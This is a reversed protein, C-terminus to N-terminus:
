RLRQRYQTPSCGAWQRFVRNFQPISGFGCDFAIESVRAASNALRKKVEEVRRQAVFDGFTVGTAHHFLRCFYHPELHVYRAVDALHIPEALHASVWDKAVAVPAPEGSHHALAQHIVSEGLRQALYDLLRLTARLRQPSMSPTAGYAKALKAPAIGVRRALESWRLPRASMDRVHGGVLTAVQQGEAMVPVALVILGAPCHTFHPSQKQRVQDLLHEQISQCYPCGGPQKQLLACFPTEQGAFSVPRRQQSECPLFKLTLGTAVHAATEYRRAVTQWAEM